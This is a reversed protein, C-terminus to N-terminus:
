IKSEPVVYLPESFRDPGYKDKYEQVDRYYDDTLCIEGSKERCILKYKPVEITTIELKSTLEVDRIIDFDIRFIGFGSIDPIGSKIDIVYYLDFTSSHEVLSTKTVIRTEGIKGAYWASKQQYSKIRVELARM